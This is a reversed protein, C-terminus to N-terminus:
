LLYTNGRRRALVPDVIRVLLHHPHTPDQSAKEVLFEWGTRNGKERNCRTCAARLNAWDDNGGLSVPINHDVQWAGDWWEPEGYAMLYIPEACYTCHGGSQRYISELTSPTYMIVYKLM